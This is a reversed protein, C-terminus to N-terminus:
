LTGEITINKTNFVFLENRNSEISPMGGGGASASVLAGQVDLDPFKSTVVDTVMVATVTCGITVNSSLSCIADKISIEQNYSLLNRIYITIYIDKTDPPFYNVELQQGAKTTWYSKQSKNEVYVTNCLMYRYFIEAIRENYGQIFVAATRPPVAIDPTIPLDQNPFVNYIISCMAIGPLSQIALAARDMQTGEVGRRQIRARLNSISEEAHGPVSADTILKRLGIIKSDFGTITNRAINFSGNKQAILVIRDAGDVPVTIDFAPKFQVEQGAITVTIVDDQHIECPHPDEDSSLDAYVTGNIITKTSKIRKVGAIDAINLLQRDSSEPISSACGASYVLKQLITTLYSMGYIFQYFPNAENVDVEILEGLSNKIQKDTCRNNIFTVLDDANESPTKVEYQVGDLELM